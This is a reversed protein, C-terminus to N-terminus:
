RGGQAPWRCKGPKGSRFVWVGGADICDRRDDITRVAEEGADMNREELQELVREEIRHREYRWILWSGLVFAVLSALAIIAAPSLRFLAM